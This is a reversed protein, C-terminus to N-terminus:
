TKSIPSPTILEVAGTANIRYEGGDRIIDAYEIVGNARVLESSKYKVRGGGVIVARQLVQDAHQLYVFDADSEIDANQSRGRVILTETGGRTFRITLGNETQAVVMDHPMEEDRQYPLLIYVAPSASSAQRSITIRNGPRTSLYDDSIAFPEIRRETKDSQSLCPIIAMRGLKGRLVAGKATPEIPFTTVFSTRLQAPATPAVADCVIWFMDHLFLVSRSITVNGGSLMRAQYTAQYYESSVTRLYKDVSCNPKQLWSFPDSPNELPLHSITQGNHVRASRYLNRKDLDATYAYTGPDVIFNDAGVSIDLHLMDAHSHPSDLYGFPGCRFASYMGSPSRSVIVGSVCGGQDGKALPSHHEGMMNRANLDRSSTRTSEQEAFGSLWFSDVFKNTADLSLLARCADLLPRFDSAPVRSLFFLRGGDEDGIHPWVGDPRQLEALIDAGQKLRERFRPELPINRQKCLALLSLLFEVAYGHYATSLEAHMGEVTFQRDLEALLIDNGIKQWVSADYFERFLIGAIMLAYAEGFLHTNPSFHKSLHHRVYNACSYILGYLDKAFENTLSPSDKFFWIGWALAHIRFASELASCFNVGHYDRNNEHWDHVLELFKRPYKEDGTLLYAQGLDYVFQFRSIEWVIKSDGVVSRDLYDIDSYFCEPATVKHIPDYNWRPPEGYSIFGLNFVPFRDAVIQDAAGIIRQRESPLVTEIFGKFKSRLAFGPMFETDAHKRLAAVFDVQNDHSIFRQLFDNTFIRNFCSADYAPQGARYIRREQRRCLEERWRDALENFQGTALKKVLKRLQDARM